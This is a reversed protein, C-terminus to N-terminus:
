MDLQCVSKCVKIPNKFEGVQVQNSVMLGISRHEGRKVCREGLLNLENVSTKSSKCKGDPTAILNHLTDNERKFGQFSKWLVVAIRSYLIQNGLFYFPFRKLTM